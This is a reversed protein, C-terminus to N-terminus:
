HISTYLMITVHAFDNNETSQSTKITDIFMVFEGIPKSLGARSSILYGLDRGRLPQVLSALEPYATFGDQTLFLFM